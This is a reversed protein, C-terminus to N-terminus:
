GQVSLLNLYKQSRDSLLKWMHGVTHLKSAGDGQKLLEWGYEELHMLLNEDPMIAGESSMLIRHYMDIVIRKLTNNNPYIKLVDFFLEKEKLRVQLNEKGSTEDDYVDQLFEIQKSLREICSEKDTNPEGELLIRGLPLFFHHRKSVPKIQSTKEIFTMFADFTEGDSLATAHMCAKRFLLWLQQSYDGQFVLCHQAYAGMVQYKKLEHPLMEWLSDPIIIGIKQAIKIYRYIGESGKQLLKDRAKAVIRTGFSTLDSPLATVMQTIYEDYELNDASLGEVLVDIAKEQNYVAYVLSYFSLLNYSSTDDDLSLWPEAETWTEYLSGLLAVMSRPFAQLMSPDVLANHILEKLADQQLTSPKIMAVLPATVDDPLQFTTTLIQPTVMIHDQWNQWMNQLHGYYRQEEVVLNLAKELLIQQKNTEITGWREFLYLKRLTNNEVAELSKEAAEFHGMDRLLNSLNGAHRKPNISFLEHLLDLKVVGDTVLDTCSQLLKETANQLDKFRRIYGIWFSAPCQSFSDRDPSVDGYCDFQGDSIFSLMKLIRYVYPSSVADPQNLHQFSQSLTQLTSLSTDEDDPTITTKYFVSFDNTTHDEKHNKQRWDQYKLLISELHAAADQTEPSLVDFRREEELPWNETFVDPKDETEITKTWAYRGPVEPPIRDELTYCHETATVEPSSLILMLASFFFVGLIKVM